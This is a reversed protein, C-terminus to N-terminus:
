LIELYLQANVGQGRPVFQRYVLGFQDFFVVLMAKPVVQERVPVAPTLTKTPLWARNDRRSVPDWAYFWSEDCFIIHDAQGAPGRGLFRLAARARAM